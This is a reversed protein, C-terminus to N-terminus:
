RAMFLLLIFAIVIFAIVVLPGLKKLSNGPSPMRKLMQNEHAKVLRQAEELSPWKEGADTMYAPYRGVKLDKTPLRLDIVITKQSAGPVLSPASCGPQATSVEALVRKKLEMTHTISSAERQEFTFGAPLLTAGALNTGHAVYLGNTEGWRGLYRVERPLSGPGNLLEWEGPVKIDSGTMASATWDYVPTLATVNADQKRWYCQSAFMLWLHSVMDADAISVPVCNSYVLCSNMQPTGGSPSSVGAPKQLAASDVAGRRDYIITGDASGVDRLAVKGGALNETTKILWGCDRVYVTFQNTHTETTYINTYSGGHRNTYAVLPGRVRISETIRGEVEYATEVGSVPIASVALIATTCSLGIRKWHNIAHRFIANM